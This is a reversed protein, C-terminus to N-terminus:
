SHTVPAIIIHVNPAAGADSMAVLAGVVITLLMGAAVM